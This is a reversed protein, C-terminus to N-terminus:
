RCNGFLLAKAGQVATESGVQYALYGVCGDHHAGVLQYDVEQVTLTERGGRRQSVKHLGAGTQLFSLWLVQVGALVAELSPVEVKTETVCSPKLFREYFTPLQTTYGFPIVLLLTLSRRM